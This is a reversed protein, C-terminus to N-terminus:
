GSSATSHGGQEGGADNERMIRSFLGSYIERGGLIRAKAPSVGSAYAICM